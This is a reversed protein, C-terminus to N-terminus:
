KKIILKQRFTAEENIFQVFYIGSKLDPITISNQNSSLREKSILQGNLAYLEYAQFNMEKKFFIKEGSQVPNPYLTISRKTLTNEKLFTTVPNVKIYNTLLLSDSGEQNMVRLQISYYGTDTFAVMPSQSNANTGNAWRYTQPSISWSSSYPSISITNNNLTTSDGLELETTDASFLALPAFISPVNRISDRYRVNSPIFTGAVVNGSVTLAPIGFQTTLWKYERIHSSIGFNTTGFSVTDYAVVDTIVRICNFTDYPTILTGWADVENIRYGSSALYAPPFVNNFTFNFTSSDRDQYNLPFQYIEDKDSFNPAISINGFATPVTAGRYDKAFENSDLNYFEYVDYLDIGGMSLTDALKEAIRNSVQNSYPTQSSNYYRSVGQRIAQLSDFQWSQNAGSNQFNLLVATDLAAVSYRLTDGAQPMHNQNISIQANLQVAFFMAIGCNVIKKM